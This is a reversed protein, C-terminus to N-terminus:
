IGVLLNQESHTIQRMHWLGSDRHPTTLASIELHPPNEATSGPLIYYSSSIELYKFINNAHIIVLYHYAENHYKCVSILLIKSIQLSSM